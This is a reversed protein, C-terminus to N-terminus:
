DGVFEMFVQNGLLYGPHTLRLTEQSKNNWELLGLRILREIIEGFEEMMRRGTRCTFREQSIGEEVLRLGLMMLEQMGERETLIIKSAAAPSVDAQIAPNESMKKIYEEIGSLNAVRMNQYFGAAGAGIGLYSEDRWYTLNHQCEKGERAWNSIEYHRYGEREVRRSAEEYMDAALDEDPEPFDGQEILWKLLTGEEVSLAYMSLHDPQLKLAEEVTNLWTALEQGPLGYILDLNLNRFGAKRAAKVAQVTQAHQHIRGLMQLESDAASQMGISIRNMGASRYLRLLDPEITGPNAEMSIEIEGIFPFNTYIQHIFRTYYEAPILSPTGGGFFLTKAQYGPLVGSAWQIERELASFYDPINQQMGAYTNFDCYRCRSQCFPIHIYISIPFVM